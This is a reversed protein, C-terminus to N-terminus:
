AFDLVLEGGIRAVLRADCWVEVAYCSRGLVRAARLAGHDDSFATECVRAVRDQGTLAYLRYPTMRFVRSPPALRSRDAWRRRALRHKM